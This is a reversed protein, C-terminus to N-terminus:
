APPLVFQFTAGGGTNRSAWLRGGHSEVIRRSISLGMGTGQPKTTFFAEFIRESDDPLGTGSDTVSILLQGDDNRKSTVTLEGGTGRMAEIGNIMLNMLVQQLLVRDATTAPLGPDLATRLSISGRNATESLLVTMERVIENLQVPELLPTGRRYLSRVRDIIEAARTVDAITASAAECAETLDPADRCLWEMCAKADNAAAAMPQKLEHALSAALEGMTMERNMYALDAELQRLREREQEARKRDEIDTLTGYWKRIRGSEDRLPVARVLFWRYEGNASRHRAENEFPEGSAISAQWKNIHGDFDDPHVTSRWGGGSTSDVSLGTYEVWRRNVWVSGGDGLTIFAMTPIAEIVDLLEKESRRAAEAAVRREARERAERLARQVAPVLRALRPKLIYDTAGIRLADVATEEGIMGSVFIFPLDHRESRALELASLGDFSPLQYDALILDIGGSRLGALFEARTQVCNIECVFHDTELLEQILMADQPDDELLLIRLPTKVKVAEHQGRAAEAAMKREARVRAERLARQVSPVLRSMGTKLIYDTAGVKLAEVAVEDGLTGSVFIFPLDSRASSALMLASLGDFSPLTYDALILDIADDDLAALFEARTQTRIVDCAFNDAELVDQILGADRTDDELLM